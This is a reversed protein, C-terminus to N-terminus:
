EHGVEERIREWFTAANMKELIRKKGNEGCVPKYPCWICGNHKDDVFHPNPELKGSYISDALQSVRLTIHEQLLRLEDGTTIDGTIEGKKMKCPLFEFDEGPDMAQLVARDNLILGTRQQEKRRETKIKETDHRDRASIKGRKAPFYLVGAPSLNEQELAEGYDKLAFLYILMQMGLGHFVNTYDFVTHGTKYDVVRYYTRDGNKWLDVRDVKGDLSGSVTEGRVPVSPIDADRGQSFNLEFYTPDFSSRSMEEYLNKM